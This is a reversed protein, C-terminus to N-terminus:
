ETSEVLPAEGGDKNKHFVKPLFIAVALVLVGPIGMSVITFTQAASELEQRFGLINQLMLLLIAVGIVGLVWQYWAIRIRKQRVCGVLLLLLVGLLLGIVFWLM